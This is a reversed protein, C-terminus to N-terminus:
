KPIMGLKLNMHRLSLRLHRERREQSAVKIQHAIILVRLERGNSCMRHVSLYDCVLRNTQRERLCGIVARKVLRFKDVERITGPHHFGFATGPSGPSLGHTPAGSELRFHYMLRVVDEDLRLQDGSPM